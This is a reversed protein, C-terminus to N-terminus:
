KLKETIQVLLFRFFRGVPYEFVWFCVIVVRIFGGERRKCWICM